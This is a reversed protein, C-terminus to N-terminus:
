TGDRTGNSLNSHGYGEKVAPRAAPSPLRPARSPEPRENAVIATPRMANPPTPILSYRGARGAVQWIEGLPGNPGQVDPLAGFDFELPSAAILQDQLRLVDETARRLATARSVTPTITLVLPWSPLETRWSGARYVEVYGCIKRAFRSPRESGLDVEIFADIESGETAYVLHADPVVVSSGVRDAVQWDPEWESVAHGRHTRAARHFAVAVDATMLTHEIFLSSRPPLRRRGFAPDLTGLVRYGAETLHYVLRASGGGPGGVLRQTSAVLGRRRLRGLVRATTVQRSRPNVSTGSFLFEELHATNM